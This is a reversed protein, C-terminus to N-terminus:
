PQLEKKGYYLGGDLRKWEVGHHLNVCFEPGGRILTLFLFLKSFHM